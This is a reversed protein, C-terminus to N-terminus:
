SLAPLFNLAVVAMELKTARVMTNKGRAILVPNYCDAQPSESLPYGPHRTQTEILLASVPNSSSFVLQTHGSIHKQRLVRGVPLNRAILVTQLM